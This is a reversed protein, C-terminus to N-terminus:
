NTALHEEVAAQIDEIHNGVWYSFIKLAMEAKQDETLVPSSIVDGDRTLVIPM